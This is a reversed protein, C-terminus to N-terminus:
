EMRAIQISRGSEWAAVVYESGALDVYSGAADLLEVPGGAKRVVRIGDMTWAVVMGSRGIAIAPDKGKGLDRETGDPAAAIVHDMRRWVSWIGGQADAAMGGGDMPCANLLWTGTGLKIASGFTQGGDTSTAMYPDRAGGLWNRWMVQLTGGSVRVSPHCCECVHQDPSAYVLVNASWTVGGDKSAAGYLRTGQQRLDLWTAFIANGHGAMGHLGERAAGEVDNVRTASSWTRGADASRWALVDGDRGGGQAGVIASVVIVKGAMAVRPGRHRGLSLKGGGNKEPFIQRAPGFTRGKDESVAIRVSDGAGFVVAVRSGDVAVHPQRYVVEPAEPTIGIALALGISILM